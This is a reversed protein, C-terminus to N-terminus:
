SSAGYGFRRATEGCTAEITGLETEDFDPRYYDPPSIREIFEARVDGFDEGPLRCHALLADIASAPDACLDEYRLLLVQQGADPHDDIFDLVYRYVSDWYAAWGAAADGRAWHAHIEAALDADGANIARKGPGFEFHGSRALQEPVRSDQEALQTFLRDQKVLSAVHQVPHRVPVVIRADPFMKLIFGLRTTNYNGKALYRSAGRALLLKAVHERYFRIFDPADIDAGMVHSVAPDHLKGFFLMWVREEVAEPSEPTVMLRDKHAREVAEPPSRRTRDALWNRWFPTYVNPFDSYRHSTVDRHRALMETVITTGSRAVGAVYIPRDVDIGALEDRLVGTELRALRRWLDATADFLRAKWYLGAPVHRARRRDSV